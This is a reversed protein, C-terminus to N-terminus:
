GNYYSLKNEGGMYGHYFCYYSITGFDGTVSIIIDGYYFSYEIENIISYLFNLNGKM